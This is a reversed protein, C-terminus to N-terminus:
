VLDKGTRKCREYWFKGSARLKDNSSRVYEPLSKALAAQEGRWEANDQEEMQDIIQIVMDIYPCTIEPVLPKNKVERPTRSQTM